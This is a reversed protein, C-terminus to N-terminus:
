ERGPGHKAVLKRVSTINRMTHLVGRMAKTVDGGFLPSESVKGRILWYVERGRFEFRDTDSALAELASRVTDEVPEETFMVYVSDDPQPDGSGEFSAVAELETPTRILTPVEYGLAAKLQEEIGAQLAGPDHARTSFIVNGSAIFTAIDTHGMEGFLTRLHDMKVRHGGVNIGRLLAIFRPM